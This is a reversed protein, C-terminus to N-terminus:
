SGEGSSGSSETKLTVTFVAGQGDVRNDASIGGGYRELLGLSIWLGLGHGDPRTTFFPQFLRAKVDDTLGPGGDQVDIAVGQPTANGSTGPTPPLDRTRLTLEGGEPMANAANMLLNIVVQQLEQRNIAPQTTAQLDLVVSVRQQSLRHNVLLLCAKVTENVDVADVYGAYEGPRAHQLLQQVIMRIREIQEDLLKLEVQSNAAAPGLTDRLLDLNGQMVAIPNNVEHAVSAALQGMVALKESRVLQQQTQRLADNTAALERTRENVRQDLATGWQELARTKDAIVNLLQDLHQALQGLEDHTTTTGVRASANGDRVRQMTDNMREVPRFIGRAWRLSLVSAVAMVALFILGMIGLMAHRVWRFPQELYGVYLMGIRQEDGDLLPQYASVYWDNVVFARDLWTDGRGLVADRVAQSVRTGIARESQFLRVNTTIRVDDLFLTATGQSGFPLSGDPYVVRNIHDIFGLNQNMLVGGVLMAVPQGTADRVLAVSAAVMARDERTRHTPAANPTHVLAIGTRGELEPALQHLHAAGLVALEGRAQADPGRMRAVLRPPLPLTAEATDAPRDLAQGDLTYLRMFDLGQRHRHRELLEALTSHQPRPPATAAAPAQRPQSAPLAPSLASVLAHSLAMGQTGQGVDDLVKDFYGQAVALDSRVKTVLLRDYAVNGWVVLAVVLLPFVVLLPGLAMALLKHRISRFVPWRWPRTTTHPPPQRPM